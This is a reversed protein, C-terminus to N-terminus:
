SRGHVYLFGGFMFKTAEAGLVLVRDGLALRGSRRLRDLSVWIAASGLNGLVNADCVVRQAPLQLHEACVAAMRGNAQHPLFWDVSDRTVGQAEAADLGARLLDLGSKRIQVFDHAFHPPGGGQVQPQMSGGVSQMLGPARGLGLSGFYLCELRSAAPDLVPGLIMAGAGDGMQVLNVLQDPEDIVRRPDLFVSGTESGVLAVPSMSTAILGNAILAAAAFGTCAQRLEVHPGAYRLVDATWATNSPLPMHPTATHGILFQLQSVDLWAQELATAVARAALQPAADNPRVGEVPESLARAVHRTDIGLRRAIRRAVAAAGVPLHSALKTLLESTSLPPGPLSSGSGLVQLAATGGSSAPM